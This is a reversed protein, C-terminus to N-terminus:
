RTFEMGKRCEPKECVAVSEGMPKKPDTSARVGSVLLERVESCVICKPM